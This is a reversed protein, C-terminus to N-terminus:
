KPYTPLYLKTPSFLSTTPQYTQWSPVDWKKQVLYLVFFLFNDLSFGKKTKFNVILFFNLIYTLIDKSLIIPNDSKFYLKCFLQKNTTTMHLVCYWLSRNKTSINWFWPKFVICNPSHFTMIDGKFYSYHYIPHSAEIQFFLNKRWTAGVDLFCSFKKEFVFIEVVKVGEPGEPTDLAAFDDM